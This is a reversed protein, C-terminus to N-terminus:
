TTRQRREALLQEFQDLLAADTIAPDVPRVDVPVTVKLAHILPRYAFGDPDGGLQSM